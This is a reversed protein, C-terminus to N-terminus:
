SQMQAEEGLFDVDTPPDAINAFPTDDVLQLNNNEALASSSSTTTMTNRLKSLSKTSATHPFTKLDIEVELYSLGFSYVRLRGTM